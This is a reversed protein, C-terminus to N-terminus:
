RLLPLLRDKYQGRYYSVNKHAMAAAEPLGPAAAVGTCARHSSWGVLVLGTAVRLGLSLGQPVEM